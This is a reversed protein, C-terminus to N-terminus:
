STMSWISLSSISTGSSYVQTPYPRKSYEEEQMKIANECEKKEYDVESNHSNWTHTTMNKLM